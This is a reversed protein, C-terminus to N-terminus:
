IEDEEFNAKLHTWIQALPLRTKEGLYRYKELPNTLDDPCQRLAMYLLEVESDTLDAPRGQTASPLGLQQRRNRYDRADLAALHALMSQSAGMRILQNILESLEREREAFELMLELRRPDIRIEAIDFTCIHTFIDATMRSVRDLLRADLGMAQLETLTRQDNLHYAEIARRLICANLESRSHQDKYM